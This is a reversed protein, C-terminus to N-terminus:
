ASLNIFQLIDNSSLHSYDSHAGFRSLVVEKQGGIGKGMYPNWSKCIPLPRGEVAEDKLILTIKTGM